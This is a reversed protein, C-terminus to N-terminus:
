VRIVFLIVLFGIVLCAIRLADAWKEDSVGGLILPLALFLGGVATLVRGIFNLTPGEGVPSIALAIAGATILLLGAVILGDRGRTRGMQTLWSESLDM